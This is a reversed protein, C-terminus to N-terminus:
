IKRNGRSKKRQRKKGRNRARNRRRVKISPSRSSRSSTAKLLICYMDGSVLICM